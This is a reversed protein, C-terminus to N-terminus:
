FSLDQYLLYKLFEVSVEEDAADGDRGKLGAFVKLHEIVSLNEILIDHQPCVGTMKRIESMDDPDNVNYGYVTAAGSTAPVFGISFM